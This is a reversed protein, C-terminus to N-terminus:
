GFVSRSQFTSNGDKSFDLSGPFLLGRPVGKKEVGDFDGSKAIAQRTPDIVVIEASQNAMIWLNDNSDIVLGDAGKISNVFVVTQSPTVGAVPNKLHALIPFSCPIEWRPSASGM